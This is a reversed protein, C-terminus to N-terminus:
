EWSLLINALCCIIELHILTQMSAHLVAKITPPDLVTLCHWHEFCSVRDLPTFAVRAAPLVHSKGEVKRTTVLDKSAGPTSCLEVFYSVTFGVIGGASRGVWKLVVSTIRSAPSLCCPGAWVLDGVFLSCHIFFYSCTFFFFFVPKLVSYM